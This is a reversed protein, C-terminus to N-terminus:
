SEVVNPLQVVVVDGREVGLHSLKRALTEAEAQLAAYLLERPAGHMVASRNPPDSVAVRDPHARAHAACLDWVTSSSWWGRQRYEAERNISM